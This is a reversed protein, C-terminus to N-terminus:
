KFRRLMAHAGGVAVICGVALGLAVPSCLSATLLCLASPFACLIALPLGNLPIRYPRLLNPQKHRLAYLAAFKLVTSLCYFLMDVEALRSFSFASLALTVLANATIATAPTNYRPHLKKFMAPLFGERAMGVVLRSSTCLLTCLLGFASVAGAVGLWIKLGKGGVYDAADVFTGDHWDDRDPVYAYGVLTPLSYSLTMLAVTAILARPYSTSPEAVEGAVSGASDFGSTNWLLVTLFKRWDFALTDLKAHVVAADTGFAKPAGLLCLVIFPALVLAGFLITADGVVDIGRVNLYAVSVVVGVKVAWALVPDFVHASNTHHHLVGELYDIFLVPYLANDFFNCCIALVANVLGITPGLAHSVWVIHGGSVPIACSLEATMLALPVSWVVPMLLLGVLTRWLGAAALVEEFGYPGGSVAFFTVAALQMTGLTPARGAEAGAGAGGGGDVEAALPM